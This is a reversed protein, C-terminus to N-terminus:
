LVLLFVYNLADIEPPEYQSPCTQSPEQKKMDKESMCKDWGLTLHENTHEARYVWFYKYSYKVKRFKM